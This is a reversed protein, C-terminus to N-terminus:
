SVSKRKAIPSYLESQPRAVSEVADAVAHLHRAMWMRAAEPDRAEIATVIFEHEEDSEHQRHNVIALIESQQAMADRIQAIVGEFVKNGSAHAVATHFAADLAVWERTDGGGPVGTLATMAAVTDRLVRLDEETRREAALAAAPLEIHPRAEYLDRVSYEGLRLGSDVKSAIVFTGRGTKTETLGLTACSHLAERVVPRSVGFREALRAEAPLRDGVQYEGSEIDKRILRIVAETASVREVPGRFGATPRDEMIAM